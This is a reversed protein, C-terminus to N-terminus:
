FVIGSFRFVYERHVSFAIFEYPLACMRPPRKTAQDKCREANRRFRRPVECGRESGADVECLNVITRILNVVEIKAKVIM